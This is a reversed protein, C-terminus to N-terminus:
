TRRKSGRVRKNRKTRRNKRTTRSQRSNATRFKRKKKGGTVQTPLSFGLERQVIEYWTNDNKWFTRLGSPSMANSKLWSLSKTKLTNLAEKDLNIAIMENGTDPVEGKNRLIKSDVLRQYEAETEPISM